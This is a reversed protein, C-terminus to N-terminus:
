SSTQFSRIAMREGTQCRSVEIKGKVWMALSQRNRNWVHQTEGPLMYIVPKNIKRLRLRYQENKKYHKERLIQRIPRVSLMM